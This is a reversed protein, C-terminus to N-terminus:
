RVQVQFCTRVTEGALLTGLNVTLQSDTLTGADDGSAATYNGNTAAGSAPTRTWKIAKGGYAPDTTVATLSRGNSSLNDTLVYNALDAGGLNRTDICYELVDGPRGEASTGWAPDLTGQPGLNRVQKFLRTYVMNTTASAANNTGDPNTSDPDDPSSVTVKNTLSRAAPTTELTATTPSTVDVNYTLTGGAALSAATWTLTQGSVTAAPTSSEYIVNPPLTDTVTVSSVASTSSHNKVTITYTMGTGPKAYAPGTKTVSLDPKVNLTAEASKPVFPQDVSTLTATNRIGGEASVKATITLTATAGASLNRIHWVGTTQNYSGTSNSPVTVTHKVYSLGTPLQDKIDIGTAGVGGAPNTVTVTYTVEDGQKPAANSVTKTLNLNVPAVYVLPLRNGNIGDNAQFVTQNNPTWNSINIRWWGPVGDTRVSDGGTNLTGSGNWVGNNSVTGSVSTGDPRYYKVTAGSDLDFNRLYLPGATGPAVYFYADFSATSSAQITSQYEALVPSFDATGLTFTFSNDDDNLAVTADGSIPYAGTESFLVYKGPTDFDYTFTQGNAIGPPYTQQKLLSGGSDPTTAGASRLTFRTPDSSTGNVEDNGGATSEADNVTLSVKGGALELQDQTITIDFRHFRTTSGSTKSTYWDGITPARERGSTQFYVNASVPFNGAEAPPLALSGLLVLLTWLFRPLFSLHREMCHSVENKMSNVPSPRRFRM